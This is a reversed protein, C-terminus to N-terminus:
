TGKNGVTFPYIPNLTTISQQLLSIPNCRKHLVLVWFLTTVSRDPCLFGVAWLISRMWCHHVIAFIPECCNKSIWIRRPWRNCASPGCLPKHKCLRLRFHFWRSCSRSHSILHSFRFHLYQSLGRNLEGKFNMALPIWSPFHVKCLEITRKRPSKFEYGQGSKPQFALLISVWKLQFIVRSQSKQTQSMVKTVDHNHSTKNQHCEM